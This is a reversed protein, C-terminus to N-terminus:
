KAGGRTEPTIGLVTRLLCRRPSAREPKVGNRYVHEIPVTSLQLSSRLWNATVQRHCDEHRHCACILAVTRADSELLLTQLSPSDETWIMEKKTELGKAYDELFSTWAEQRAAKETGPPDFRKHFADRLEKSPALVLSRHYTMGHLECLYRMDEEYAFNVNRYETSLRTDIIADVRQTRMLKFFARATTACSATVIRTLYNPIRTALPM